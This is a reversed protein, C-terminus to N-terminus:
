ACGGCGEGAEREADPLLGLREVQGTSLRNRAVEDADNAEHCHPCECGNALGAEDTAALEGCWDCRFYIADYAAHDDVLSGLVDIEEGCHPCAQETGAAAADFRAQEDCFPCILFIMGPEDEAAGISADGSVDAGDASERSALWRETETPLAIFTHCQSCEVTTGAAIGPYRGVAGCASCAMEIEDAM